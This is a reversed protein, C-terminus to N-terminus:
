PTTIWTELALRAWPAFDTEHSSLTEGRADFYTLEEKQAGAELALYLPKTIERRVGVLRTTAHGEQWGSSVLTEFPYERGVWRIGGYIKWGADQTQWGILVHSPITADFSWGSVTEIRHGVLFLWRHFGPFRRYRVLLRTETDDTPSLKVTFPMDEDAIDAGLIYEGMPGADDEFSMSGYRSALVFFKPAGEKAHPLFVAGVGAVNPNLFDNEQDPATKADDGVLTRREKFLDGKLVFMGGLVKAPIPVLLNAEYRRRRVELDPAPADEREDLYRVQSPQAEEVSVGPGKVTKAYAPIPSFTALILALYRAM